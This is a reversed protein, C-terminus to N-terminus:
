YNYTMATMVLTVAQAPVRGDLDIWLFDDSSMSPIMLNM